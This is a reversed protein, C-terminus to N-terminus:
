IRDKALDSRQRRCLLRMDECLRRTIATTIRTEQILREYLRTLV